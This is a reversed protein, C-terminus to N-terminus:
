RNCTALTEGDAVLTVSGDQVHVEVSTAKEALPIRTGDITAVKPAIVVHRGDMNVTATDADVVCSASWADSHAIVTRGSELTGEASVTLKCELSHLDGTVAYNDCLFFHRGAGAIRDGVPPSGLPAHARSNNFVESLQDLSTEPM